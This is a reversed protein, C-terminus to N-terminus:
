MTSCWAFGAKWKRRAALVVVAGIISPILSSPEPVVETLTGVIIGPSHYSVANGGASLVGNDDHIQIWGFINRVFPQNLSDSTSVGLYFDSSGIFYPPQPPVFFPVRLFQNAAITAPGFQDGPQVFYWDSSQDVTLASIGFLGNAFNFWVETPDTASVDQYVTGFYNGGPPYNGPGALVINTGGVVVAQANQFTIFFLFTSAWVALFLSSPRMSNM